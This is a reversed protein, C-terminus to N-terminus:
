GTMQRFGDSKYLSLFDNEFYFILAHLMDRLSFNQTNHLKAAQTRSHLHDRRKRNGCITPPM